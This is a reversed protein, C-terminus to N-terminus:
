SADPKAELQGKIAEHLKTEKAARAILTIVVDRCVPCLQTYIDQLSISMPVTMTIAKARKKRTAM